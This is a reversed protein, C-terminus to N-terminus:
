RQEFENYFIGWVVEWSSSLVASCFGPGPESVGIDGPVSSCAMMYALLEIAAIISQKSFLNCM